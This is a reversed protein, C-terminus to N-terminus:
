FLFFATLEATTLKAPVATPDLPQSDGEAVFEPSQTLDEAEYPKPTPAGSRIWDMATQM